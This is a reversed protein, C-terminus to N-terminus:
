QKTGNSNYKIVFFDSSGLISSGDLSISTVGAVYINGSAGIAVGNASSGFSGLHQNWQKIGSSNYKVLFVGRSSSGYLKGAGGAVYINDSSDISVAHAEDGESTGVQNIWQKTGSSNYKIVFIDTAGYHTNNDLEGWTLGVVIVNDSSDTEVGYAIDRNSSGLQKTWQLTGSSNYKIVFLDNDGFATNGDFQGETTGAVLVNNSSDTAIAYGFDQESTGFLRSWQKTGSSNYKVIFYDFRGVSDQGDLKWAYGTIYLDGSTDTTVGYAQDYSASGLQKTWLKTGSSNYKILFIDEYGIETNGDLGGGTWGTVYINGSSDTTVGNAQDNELTGLQKTWQITGQSNYKILILDSMGSNTDGELVGKTYGAVYLNGSSDTTVANATDESTTGSQITWLTFIGNPTEYKSNLNNGAIDKVGTTIKFKYATARSLSNSPDLTFMTNSRSIWPSLSSMQICSSFNDSSLQLSGSCSTNLTNTTVSSTNMRNSFTVSFNTSMSVGSQNDTPSISSVTPAITETTVIMFVNIFYINSVNGASDTVSFACNSYTGYSLPM